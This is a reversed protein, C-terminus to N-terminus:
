IKNKKSIKSKEPLSNEIKQKLLITSLENNEYFFTHTRFQWLDSTALSNIGNTDGINGVYHIKTPNKLKLYWLNALLYNVMKNKEPNNMVDVILTYKKFNFKENLSQSKKFPEIFNEMEKLSTMLFCDEKNSLIMKEYIDIMHLKEESNDFFSLFYQSNECYFETYYLDIIRLKQQYQDEKNM